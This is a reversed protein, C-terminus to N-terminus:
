GGAALEETGAGADQRHWEVEDGPFNAPAHRHADEAELENVMLVMIGIYLALVAFAGAMDVLARKMRMGASHDVASLRRNM